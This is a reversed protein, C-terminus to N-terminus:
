TVCATRAYFVAAKLVIYAKIAM